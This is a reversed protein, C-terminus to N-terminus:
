PDGVDGELERMVDDFPIGRGADLEELAERIGEEEQATLPAGLPEVLYRGPPLGRLEAPVHSGDWEIIRSDM